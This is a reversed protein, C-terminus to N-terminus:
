IYSLGKNITISNLIVYHDPLTGLAVIRLDTLHLDSKYNYWM